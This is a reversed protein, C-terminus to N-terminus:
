EAGYGTLKHNSGGYRPHCGGRGGPSSESFGARPRRCVAGRGDRGGREPAASASPMGDNGFPSTTCAWAVTSFSVAICRVAMASAKWRWSADGWNASSPQARRERREIRGGVGEDLLSAKGRLMESVKM